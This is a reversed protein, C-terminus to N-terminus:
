PIHRRYDNGRMSDRYELFQMYEDFREQSSKSLHDYFFQVNEDRNTIDIRGVLMDITCGLADAIVWAAKLPIRSEMGDSCQEYRMYTTPPIGISQAFEKSTRYGAAKRLTQLSKPKASTESRSVRVKRAM